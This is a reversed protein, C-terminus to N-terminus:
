IKNASKRKLFYFRFLLNQKGIKKELFLIQMVHTSINRQFKDFIKLANEYFNNVTKHM